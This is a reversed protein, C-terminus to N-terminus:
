IVESSFTRGAFSAGISKFISSGDDLALTDAGWLRGVLGDVIGMVFLVTSYHGMALGPDGKAIKVL